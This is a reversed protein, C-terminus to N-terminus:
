HALFGGDVPISAGTVFSSLGSGLWVVAEAVDRPQGIRGIPHQQVVKAIFGPERAEIGEVLPTQILGPLVANVRVGRSSYEMAAAKTLGIVAHKSAIYASQGSAAVVGFSSSTNIISGGGRRLMEPIEAKMCLFVGTLNVGLLRQFQEESTDALGPGALEVGANNHAIDLGGFLEVTQQLLHEISGFETVDSQVFRVESGGGAYEVTECGRDESLDAVVVRAGNEVLAKVTERGIGGGAGTVLAVKGSLLDSM